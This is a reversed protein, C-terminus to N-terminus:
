AKLIAGINLKVLNEISSVNYKEMENQVVKPAQSISVQPFKAEVLGSGIQPAAPSGFTTITASLQEEGVRAGPVSQQM